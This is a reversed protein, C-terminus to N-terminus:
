MQMRKIQMVQLLVTTEYDAVGDGDTDTVNNPTSLASLPDSGAAVEVADTFGDDDDDADCVDGTGDQDTDLQNSNADNPCNDCDDGTGDSDTDASPIIKISKQAGCYDNINSVTYTTTTTPNVSISATTLTSPLGAPTGSVDASWLYSAGSGGGANLTISEGNCISADDSELSEAGIHINVWNESTLYTFTISTHTGPFSVIVYGETGTFQTPSDFTVNSGAWLVQYPISTQIPVATAANGISGLAIQPNTVASAFTVTFTGALTNKITNTTNPVNFQTPYTNPSLTSAGSMGGVSHSLTVGTGTSAVGNVTRGSPLTGTGSTGSISSWNVWQIGGVVTSNPTNNYNTAQDYGLTLTSGALQIDADVDTTETLATNVAQTTSLTLTETYTGTLPAAISRVYITTVVLENDSPTLTIQDSFTGGSSQSIEFNAPADIVLDDTIASAEVTFSQETSNAGFCAEFNTFSEVVTISGAVYDTGDLPDTGEAIEFVDTLGDGDDDTDANNGIGDSDTDLWETADNPFADCVDGYSDSDTDTQDLSFVDPCNDCVDGGDSQLEFISLENLGVGAKGPAIDDCYFRVYRVTKQPSVSITNPSQYNNGWSATGQDLTIVQSSVSWSNASNSGLIRYTYVGRDNATSNQTNVWQIKAIQYEAGLDVQIWQNAQGNAALWRGSGDATNGDIVKSAPFASSYTSSATVTGSLAL